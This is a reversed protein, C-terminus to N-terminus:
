VPLKCWAAVDQHQGWRAESFYTMRANPYRAGLEFNKAPTILSVGWQETDPRVYDQYGVGTQRYEAVVKDWRGGGVYCIEGQDALEICRRGHQTLVLVGNVALADFLKDFLIQMRAWTVHTFVSGVWILDMDAPLDLATFDVAAPVAKGKFQEACFDAGALDSFFLEADPFLARIHRGVRGYGCGYDLIRRVEQTPSAALAECIVRAASKGSTWYAEPKLTMGDDPHKTRDIPRNLYASWLTGVQELQM